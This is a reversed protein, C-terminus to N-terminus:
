GGDLTLSIATAKNEIKSKLYEKRSEKSSFYIRETVPFLENEKHYETKDIKTPAFYFEIGIVKGGQGRRSKDKIKKFTLDKFIPKGRSTLEKIAPLLIKEDIKSQTYESPIQMLECFNDWDKSFNLMKGTGRFQKLLRYLVKSYKGKIKLFENLEFYTFNANLEDILYLFHPTIKLDLRGPSNFGNVELENSEKWVSFYEFLHTTIEGILNGDKILMTFDAKFIKNRFAEILEGFEDKTVNKGLFRKLDEFYITIISNDNEKNILNEKVLTLILMFFNHEQESLLPIKIKNLDNHYKVVENM